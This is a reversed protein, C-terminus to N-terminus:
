EGSGDVYLTVGGALREGDFANVNLAQRGAFGDPATIDVTVERREGPRLRMERPEAVVRWGEPVPHGGRGHRAVADRRHAAVEDETMAATGAVRGPECRPRAPIRYADTELRLAQPWLTDNRVPFTLAAHPSNLPRVDTNEQGLNNAPNADDAWIAEVQLCYHGPAAPTRWPMHAIAPHGPAGNVPLDVRTQGIPTRVTGIGFELFAFQVPLNVAPASNSGNWIRAMVDYETDALLASSPVPVGGRELHIDPNDWTVALGQDMLYRQSYLMPDPRRYVDPPVPICGPPGTGELGGSEDEGRTGRGGLVRRLLWLGLLWWFLLFLLVGRLCRALAVSFRRDAKM